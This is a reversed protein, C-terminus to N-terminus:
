MNETTKKDRQGASERPNGRTLVSFTVFVGTQFDPSYEQRKFFKIRNM